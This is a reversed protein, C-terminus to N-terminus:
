FSLPPPSSPAAPLPVDRLNELMYEIVPKGGLLAFLKGGGFRSAAGAALLVCGIKMAKTGKLKKNIIGNLM